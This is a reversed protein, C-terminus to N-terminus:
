RGAQFALVAGEIIAAWMALSAALAVIFRPDAIM